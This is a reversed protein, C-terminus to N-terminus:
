NAERLINWRFVGLFNPNSAEPHWRSDPHRRLEDITVRRMEGRHGHDSGTHYVLWEGSSDFHSRGVYIMSHFPSNQEPQNFFLLDGPKAARLDRGVLHTNFKVLTQADAFEAFRENEIDGPRLPGEAVRFLNAKLPTHPYDYKDIEQQVSLDGSDMTKFWASDHRRLSERYAFRLLAACDVIEKARRGRPIVAQWEALSTFWRRFADDDRGTLRMFDPTGDGFSDRWSPNLNVSLSTPVTHAGSFKLTAMGANVGPLYAFQVTREDLSRGALIRGQGEVSVKVDQATIKKSAKLLVKAASAGDALIPNPTVEVSLRAPGSDGCSSVSLLLAAGLGIHSLRM